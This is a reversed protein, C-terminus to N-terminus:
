TLIKCHEKFFGGGTAQGIENVLIYFKYYESAHVDTFSIMDSITCPRVRYKEGVNERYWLNENSKKIEQIVIWFPAKEVIVHRTLKEENYNYLPSCYKFYM